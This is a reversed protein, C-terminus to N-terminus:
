RKSTCNYSFVVDSSISCTCSPNIEIYSIVSKSTKAQVTTGNARIPISHVYYLVFFGFHVFMIVSRKNNKKGWKVENCIVTVFICIKWKEQFGTGEEEAM